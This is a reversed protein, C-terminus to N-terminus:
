NGPVKPQDAACSYLSTPWRPTLASDRVYRCHEHIYEDFGPVDSIRKSNPGRAMPQVVLIYRPPTRAFDAWLKGQNQQHAWALMRGKRTEPPPQHYMASNPMGEIAWPFMLNSAPILGNAAYFAPAMGLVYAFQGRSENNTGGVSEVNALPNQEAALNEGSRSWSTNAMLVASTVLGATLYPSAAPMAASMRTGLEALVVGGVVSMLMQIPIIHSNFFVPSMFIVVLMGLAMLLLLVRYKNLRPQVANSYSTLSLAAAIEIAFLGTLLPAESLRLLVTNIEWIIAKLMPVDRPLFRVAPYVFTTALYELHRGGLYFMLLFLLVPTLVGLSFIVGNKLAARLRAAWHQDPTTLCLWAVALVAGLAYTQRTLMALGMLAGALFLNAASVSVYRQSGQRQILLALGLLLFLGGVAETKLALLAANLAFVQLLLGIAALAAVWGSLRFAVWGAAIALLLSVAFAALKIASFDYIASTMQVWQHLIYIVPGKNDHCGAVPIQQTALGRAACASFYVEDIELPQKRLPGFQITAIYDLSLLALVLMVVVGLWAPNRSSNSM